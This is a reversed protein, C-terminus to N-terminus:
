LSAQDIGVAALIHRYDEIIRDVDDEPFQVTVSQLMGTNELKAILEGFSGLGGADSSRRKCAAFEASKSLNDFMLQAEKLESSSIKGSRKKDYAIDAELSAKAVKRAYDRLNENDLM